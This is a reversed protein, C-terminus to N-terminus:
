LSFLLFMLISTNLMLYTKSRVLTDSIQKRSMVVLAYGGNTTKFSVPSIFSVFPGGNDSDMWPESQSMGTGEWNPISNLQEISPILGAASIRTGDVSIIGVGEVQDLQLLSNVLRDLMLDDDTFLPEIATEALQHTMRFGSQSFQTEILQQQSSLTLQSQVSLGLVILGGLLLGIKLSLPFQKLWNINLRLVM